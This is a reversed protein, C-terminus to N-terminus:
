NPILGPKAILGLKGLVIRKPLGISAIFERYAQAAGNWLYDNEDCDDVILIGGPSLQDFIRPLARSTPRFLDVDCLCFALPGLKSYEFTGADARYSEVRGIGNIRMAEDFWAKSNISFAAAYDSRKKGRTSVEVAIDEKTFGAFTDICIYRKEIGASDMYKKLFMTTFGAAVGVELIAGKIHRTEELKSCLLCLQQASMM